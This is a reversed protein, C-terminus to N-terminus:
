LNLTEAWHHSFLQPGRNTTISKTEKINTGLNKKINEFIKQAMPLNKLPYTWTYRSFRDITLQFLSPKDNDKIPGVLDTHLHPYREKAAEIPMFELNKKTYTNKTKKCVICEDTVDKSATGLYKMNSFHKAALYTNRQGPHSFIESKHITKIFDKTKICNNEDKTTNNTINNIKNNEENIPKLRLTFPDIENYINHIKQSM